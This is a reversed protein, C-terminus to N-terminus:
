MTKEWVSSSASKQLLDRFDDSNEEPPLFMRRKVTQGTAPLWKALADSALVIYDDPQTNFSQM